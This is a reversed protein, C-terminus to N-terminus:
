LGVQAKFGDLIMKQTKCTSPDPKMAPQTKVLKALEERVKVSAQDDLYSEVRWVLKEVPASASKQYDKFEIAIKTPSGFPVQHTVCGTAADRALQIGTFDTMLIVKEDGVCDVRTPAVVYHEIDNHYALFAMTELYTASTYQGKDFPVKGRYAPMAQLLGALSSHWSIFDPHIVSMQDNMHWAVFAKLFSLALEANEEQVTGAKCTGLVDLKKLDYPDYTTQAQVSSAAGAVMALALAMM